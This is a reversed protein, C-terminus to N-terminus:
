SDTWQVLELGTLLALTLVGVAILVWLVPYQLRRLLRLGLPVSAAAVIVAAREALSEM